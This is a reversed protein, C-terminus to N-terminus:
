FFVNENYGFLDKYSDTYQRPDKGSLKIDIRNLLKMTYIITYPPVAYLSGNLLALGIRNGFVNFPPENKGNISRAFGYGFPFIAYLCKNNNFLSMINKISM